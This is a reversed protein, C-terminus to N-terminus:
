NKFHHNEDGGYLIVVKNKNFHFKKKTCKICLREYASFGTKLLPDGKVKKNVRVENHYEYRM